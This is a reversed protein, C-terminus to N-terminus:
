VVLPYGWSDRFSGVAIRAIDILWGIGFLGGTFLYVLGKFVKGVYFYHIGFDYLICHHINEFPTGKIWSHDWAINMHVGQVSGVRGGRVLLSAYRFNPAWRANHNVALKRNREEALRCLEEGRALDTTFPKQSLVHKDALLADRIIGHRVDPHTTIDAVDIAPLDLARRYDDFVAAGPYFRDRLEEAASLRVDCIAAVDYGAAAYATLHQVAIGGAGILAIKAPHVNTAPRYPLDPAPVEPVPPRAAYGYVVKGTESKAM